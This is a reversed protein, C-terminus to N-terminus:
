DQQQLIKIIIFTGEKLEPPINKNINPKSYKADSVDENKKNISRQAAQLNMIQQKINLNGYDLPNDEPYKNVLFFFIM